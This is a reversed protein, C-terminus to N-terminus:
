LRQWAGKRGLVLDFGRADSDLHHQSVSFGVQELAQAPCGGNAARQAARRPAREAGDGSAPRILLLRGGTCLQDFLREFLRPGDVGPGLADGLLIKDYHFPYAVFELLDMEVTRHGAGPAPRGRREPSGDDVVLVQYRLSAHELLAPICEPAGLGLDVVLDDPHLALLELVLRTLPEPCGANGPGDSPVVRSAAGGASSSSNRV